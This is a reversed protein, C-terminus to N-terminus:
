GPVQRTLGDKECWERGVRRFRRLYKAGPSPATSAETAVRIKPSARSGQSFAQCMMPRLLCEFPGHKVGPRTIGQVCQLGYRTLLLYVEVASGPPNRISDSVCQWPCRFERALSPSCQSAVVPGGAKRYVSQLIWNEYAQKLM